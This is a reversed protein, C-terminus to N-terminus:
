MQIKVELFMAIKQKIEWKINLLTPCREGRRGGWFPSLVFKLGWTDLFFSFTKNAIKKKKKKANEDVALVFSYCVHVSYLM